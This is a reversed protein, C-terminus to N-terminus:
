FKRLYFVRWGGSCVVTLWQNNFDLIKACIHDLWV